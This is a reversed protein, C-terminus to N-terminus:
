LTEVRNSLTYHLDSSNCLLRIVIIIVDESLLRYTTLCTHLLSVSIIFSSFIYFKMNGACKCCQDLM